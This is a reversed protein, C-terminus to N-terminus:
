NQLIGLQQAAKWGPFVKAADAAHIQGFFDSAMSQHWERLIPLM